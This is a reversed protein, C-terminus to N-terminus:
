PRYITSNRRYGECKQFKRGQAEEDLLTREDKTGEDLNLYKKENEDESKLKRLFKQSREKRM